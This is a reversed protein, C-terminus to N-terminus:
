NTKLHIDDIKEDFSDIVDKLMYDMSSSDIKNLIKKIKRYIDSYNKWWYNREVKAELLASYIDANKAIKWINWEFPNLMYEFVQERYDIDVYSFMYDDMMKIEVKELTENFWEVSKKTPTIIDWTIAEPIDHYITRLLLEEMSFNWWNNNEIKWIIYAIFTIVVLHSMVSIPFIRTQWSWRMSHSLRRIHSLYRKYNENKLLTDLSKLELRKQTLFSNIENLPVEYIDDYIKSNVLCENLGAYKKACDIILLELKNETNRLTSELDKKIFDPSDLDLINQIWIEEIREFISPDINKIYERTWSNIDSTLLSLFSNFIIRKILFERDIKKWDKEELYALFLAIHIVYWVNDMHSVDEIRPFNNWRKMSLGRTLMLKLIFGVM